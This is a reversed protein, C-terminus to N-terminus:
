GTPSSYDDDIRGHNIQNKRLYETFLEEATMGAVLMLNMFFHFADVLELKFNIESDKDWLTSGSWPKWPVERLAEHLEDTIALVMTRVYDKRENGELDIPEKGYLREQLEAQLRLMEKLRDEHVADDWENM